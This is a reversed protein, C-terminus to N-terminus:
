QATSTTKNLVVALNDVDTYNHVHANYATTLNAVATDTASQANILDGVQQQLASIMTVLSSIDGSALAAMQQAKRAKTFSIQDIKREEM